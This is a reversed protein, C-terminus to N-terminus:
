VWHQYCLSVSVKSKATIHVANPIIASTEVKEVLTIERMPIVVSLLQRVQFFSSLVNYEHPSHYPFFSSYIHSFTNSKQKKLFPSAQKFMGPLAAM